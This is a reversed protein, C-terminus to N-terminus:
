IKIFAENNTITGHHGGEVCRYREGLCAYVADVYCRMFPIFLIPNNETGKGNEVKVLEWKFLKNNENRRWEHGLTFPFLDCQTSNVLKEFEEVCEKFMNKINELEISKEEREKLAIAVKEELETKKM